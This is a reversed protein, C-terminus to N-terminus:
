PRYDRYSSERKMDSLATASSVSDQVPSSRSSTLFAVGINDACPPRDTAPAGCVLCRTAINNTVQCRSDPSGHGQREVADFFVTCPQHSRSGSAAALITFFRTDKGSVCFVDCPQPGRYKGGAGERSSTASGREDCIPRLSTRRGLVTKKGPVGRWRTIACSTSSM